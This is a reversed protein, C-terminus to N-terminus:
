ARTKRRFIELIATELHSVIHDWSYREVALERARRGMALRAEPESLLQSVADAFREPDDTIHAHEGDRLDLGHAGKHTTVIAKSMAMAIPIKHKVGSGMRHPAVVVAAREIYPRVDPVYGTVEIGPHEALARVQPLPSGGVIYFKADPHRARIAPFVQQSFFVAADVNRMANMQGVLVSSGPEEAQQSGPPFEDLDVGNPAVLRPMGPPSVERTLEKENESVSISLDVARYLRREARRVLIRNFRAYAKVWWRDSGKAMLDWLYSSLDHQDLIRLKGLNPPLHQAAAIRSCWVLDPSLERGKQEVATQFRQNHLLNLEYPRGTFLSKLGAPVRALRHPVTQVTTCYRLAEQQSEASLDQESWALALLHVEHRKSLRKILNAVRLKGGGHPPFPFFSTLYLIRLRSADM